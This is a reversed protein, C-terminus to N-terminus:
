SRSTKWFVCEHVRFDFVYVCLVIMTYLSSSPQGFAAHATIFRQHVLLRGRSTNMRENIIKIFIFIVVKTYSLCTHKSFVASFAAAILACLNSQQHSVRCSESESEGERERGLIRVRFVNM